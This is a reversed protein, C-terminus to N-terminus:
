PLTGPASQVARPALPSLKTWCYGCLTAARMASRHCSPCERVDPAPGLGLLKVLEAWSASLAGTTSAGSMERDITAVVARLREREVDSGDFGPRTTEREDAMM